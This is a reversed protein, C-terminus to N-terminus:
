LEWGNAVLARRAAPTTLARVFARAADPAAARSLVVADFSTYNQVAAPLPAVLVVGGQAEARKIESVQTFGIENGRSGALREIMADGTPVQVAKAGLREAVGLEKLMRAIYVGSAGESYVVADAELIASKM